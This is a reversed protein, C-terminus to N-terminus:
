RWRLAYLRIRQVVTGVDIARVEPESVTLGLARAAGAFEPAAVRGPDAVNATGDPALTRALVEAVLRAYAREYLVDSAVVVDYRPLDAPLDRWDLLWTACAHGSRALNVRAFALADAYYDSVTVDFGARAAALAVVGVGCGLELLARGAGREALLKEALVLSSPWV